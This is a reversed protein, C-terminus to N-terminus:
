VLVTLVTTIVLEYSVLQSITRLSGLLSYKNQITSALLYLAILGLNLLVVLVLVTCHLDTTLM